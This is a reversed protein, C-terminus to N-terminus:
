VEAVTLTSSAVQAVASVSGCWLVNGLRFDWSGGGAGLWIAGAGTQAKGAACLYLIVANSGSNVIQGGVRGTNASVVLVGTTPVALGDTGTSTRYALVRKAGSVPFKELVMERHESDAVAVEILDTRSQALISALLQTHKALEVAVAAQASDVMMGNGGAM